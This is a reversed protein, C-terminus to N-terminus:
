SFSSSADGSKSASDRKLIKKCDIIPFRARQTMTEERREGEWSKMREIANNCADMGNGRNM